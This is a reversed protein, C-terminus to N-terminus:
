VKASVSITRTARNRSEKRAVAAQPLLSVASAYAKKNRDSEHIKESISIVIKDVEAEEDESSSATDGWSYAKGVIAFLRQNPLAYYHYLKRKVAPHMRRGRREGSWMEVPKFTYKKPDVGVFEMVNEVSQQPHANFERFEIFQISCLLHLGINTGVHQFIM